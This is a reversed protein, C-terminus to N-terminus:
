QDPPALLTHLGRPFQPSELWDALLHLELATLGLTSRRELALRQPGAQTLFTASGALLSDLKKLWRTAAADTPLQAHQFLLRLLQGMALDDELMQGTLEAQYYILNTRGLLPRLIEASLPIAEGSALPYLGGLLFDRRGVMVPQLVPAIILTDKWILGPPSAQWQVVGQQNTALWPNARPLLRAAFQGLQNSAGPLPFAFYSLFPMASQGWFFAQDPPPAFQLDQWAPVTALWSALGRVATFGDLPGHILNTPIEWPPLPLDLPRSFDLSARTLVNGAEGAFTLHVHSISSLLQSVLNGAEGRGAGGASLSCIANLCSPAFDAELWFNNTAPLRAAFDALSGNTGNGLGILMWEGSQSIQAAPLAAPLNTRWLRARDAPLRLALLFQSNQHNIGVEGRGLSESAGARETRQPGEGGAFEKRQKGLLELGGASLSSGAPAAIELYFESTLLDDLLPRLLAPANTVGHAPLRSIKDLTQAVLATTQPLHWIGMFQAANTDAGVAKLGLWHVSALPLPDAPAASLPRVVLASGPLLALLVLAARRFNM